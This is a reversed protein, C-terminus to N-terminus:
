AAAREANGAETWRVPAVMFRDRDEGLLAEVQLARGSEPDLWSRFIVDPGDADWLRDILVACGDTWHDPSIATQEVARCAQEGITELRSRLVELDIPDIDHTM